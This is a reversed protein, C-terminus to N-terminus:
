AAETEAQWVQWWAAWRQSFVEGSQAFLRRGKGAAQEVLAQQHRDALARTVGLTDADGFADPEADLRSRFVHIDHHDGLNNSLDHLLEARPEVLDPFLRKLLRTHYWHYKVRKRWEHLKPGTPDDLGEDMADIARGYTKELGGQLADWGQDTLSWERARERAEGFLGRARMTRDQWLEDTSLAKRRRTFERRIPAFAAREIQADYDELLLDYTDQMVKADRLDDFLHAVRKFAENERKYDAFAPRVLRILGRLKKCRKRADHVAEARDIDPNTLSKLGEGIQYDAIARVQEQVNGAQKLSYVM